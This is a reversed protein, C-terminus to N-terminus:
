VPPESETPAPAPVVVVPVHAREAVQHSTSGLFVGSHSGMGRSGVVILDAQEEASVRLLVSVPDGPVVRCREAVGEDVLLGAAHVAVVDAGLSRALSRAWEHARDGAASGDIGVLIRGISV